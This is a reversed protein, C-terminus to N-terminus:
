YIHQQTRVQQLYMFSMQSQLNLFSTGPDLFSTGPNLFSTGSNLNVKEQKSAPYSYILDELRREEGGTWLESSSLDSAGLDSTPLEPSGDEVERLNLNRHPSFSFRPLPPEQLNVNDLATHTSAAFSSRYGSHLEAPLISESLNANHKTEELIERAFSSKFM